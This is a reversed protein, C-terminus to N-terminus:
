KKEYVLPDLKMGGIWKQPLEDDIEFWNRARLAENRMNQVEFTPNFENIVWYIYTIKDYIM